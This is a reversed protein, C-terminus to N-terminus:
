QRGFLREVISRDRAREALLVSCQLDSIVDFVLPGTLLRSLLGREIAGIIVGM